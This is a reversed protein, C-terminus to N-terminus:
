NGEWKEWHQRWEVGNRLRQIIASDNLSWLPLGAVSNEHYPHEGGLLSSNWKSANVWLNGPMCTGCCTRQRRLLWIQLNGRIDEHRCSQHHFWFQPTFLHKSSGFFNGILLRYTMNRATNKVPCLLLLWSKGTAVMKPPEVSVCVHLQAIQRNLKNTLKYLNHSMPPLSQNTALESITCILPRLFPRKFPTTGFRGWPYHWTTRSSFACAAAVQHSIYQLTEM